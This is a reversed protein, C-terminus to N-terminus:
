IWTSMLAGHSALNVAITLLLVLSIVYGAIGRCNTDWTATAIAIHHQVTTFLSVAWTANNCLNQQCWMWKPVYYVKITADSLM